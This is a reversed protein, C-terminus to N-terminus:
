AKNKEALVATAKCPKLNQCDRGRHALHWYQLTNRDMVAKDIRCGPQNPPRFVIPFTSAGVTSGLCYCFEPYQAPQVSLASARSTVVM